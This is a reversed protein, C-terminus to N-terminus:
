ALLPKFMEFADEGNAYAAPSRLTRMFGNLEFLSQAAHNSVATSLTLVVSGAARAREEARQLLLSGVGRRTWRPMVAISDLHATVPSAIPGFPRGLKRVSLVFYGVRERQGLVALEALTGPGHAMAAFSHAPDRSWAAFVERALAGCFAEDRAELPRFDLSRVSGRIM